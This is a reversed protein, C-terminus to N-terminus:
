GAIRPVQVRWLSHMLRQAVREFALHLVRIERYLQILQACLDSVVLQDLSCKLDSVCRDSGSVQIVGSQRQSVPKLRLSRYDDICGIVLGMRPMEKIAEALDAPLIPPMAREKCVRVKHDVIGL